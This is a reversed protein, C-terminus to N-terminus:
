KKEKTSNRIVLEPKVFVSHVEPQFDKKIIEMLMDVGINVMTEIDQTVTTIPISAISSYVVNDYGAVSIDDPVKIQKEHLANLVGLAMYDNSTVIADIHQTRQLLKVTAQRAQEFTVRPCMVFLDENIDLGYESFAKKYGEMRLDTAVTKANGCIFYIDRHGISLLYKVLNYMGEKLDVMVFPPFTGEYYASVFVCPVKQKKLLQYHSVNHIPKNTPVIIIGEAQKSLFEGIIEEEAYPDENSIAVILHYGYDRICSDVCKIIKGYYPNESDPVIMGITRSKRKVLSRAITNPKYNLQEALEKIKLRTDESVGKKGNLAMSVAAESVNAIRAIDKLTYKM